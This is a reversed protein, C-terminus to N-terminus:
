RGRPRQREPAPGHPVWSVNQEAVKRVSELTPPANSGLPKASERKRGIRLVQKPESRRRTAAWVRLWLNGIHRDRRLAMVTLIMLASAFVGGWFLLQESPRDVVAVIIFACAGAGLVVVILTALWLVAQRGPDTNKRFSM